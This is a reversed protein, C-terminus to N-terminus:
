SRRRGPTAASRFLEPRDQELQRLARGVRDLHDRMALRAADPRRGAIAAVIARHEELAVLIGGPTKTIMRWAREARLWITETLTTMRPYGTSVLILEHMEHDMRFFGDIDRDQVLVDQIRINRHLETIPAETAIRAVREAAAQELASRLFASELIEAMSFPAAFSGAQPVVEILGEGSLRTVAESVPFLSVGLQRALAKKDIREGPGIALSLIQRRLSRCVRDSLSGAGEAVPELELQM